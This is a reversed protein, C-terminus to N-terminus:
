ELPILKVTSETQMTDGDSCFFVYEKEGFQGLITNVKPIGNKDYVIFNSGQGVPVAKYRGAPLDKGIVYQGANFVKPQSKRTKIEGTLKQLESRKNDAEAKMNSLDSQLKEIEAQLQDRQKLANMAENVEQKKNDLKHEYTKIEKKIESLRKDMKVFDVKEKNLEVTATGRGYGWAVLLAIILAAIKRKRTKFM